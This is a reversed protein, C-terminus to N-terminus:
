FNMQVQVAWSSPEDITYVALAPTNFTWPYVGSSTIEDFINKGIVAVSWRNDINALEARVDIKAFDEQLGWFPNYTGSDVFYESALYAGGQLTLELGETIPTTYTAQVHGSWKPVFAFSRGAGNVPTVGNVCGANIQAQTCAAGPYDTYKADNYAGSVDIRFAGWDAAGVFEVGQSQAAGANKTLLIGNVYQGAQLDEFELRYASMNLTLWDTPQAKFGVEYNTSIEPNLKFTAATVSRNAGQFTGGKSGRSVGAYAMINPTVDYQVTLSPDTQRDTLTDRFPGSPASGIFNQGFDRVLVYFGDKEVETWRVGGILRLDDTANWTATGYLSLSSGNQRFYSTMQGNLNFISFQGAYRISNDIGHRSSDVYAGVIWEIPQGTPSVLRLEQSYQQFEERFRTGFTIPDAHSAAAWSDSKYHEYGSVSVLTLDGLGLTGVISGHHGRQGDFDTIGFQGSTSKVLRIAQGSPLSAPFGAMGRGDVRDDDYQFKAVVNFNENPEWALAARANFFDQRPDKNGTARNEVWGNDDLYKIAIRGSLTDTIPGTVYGFADVGERDILYSVTAGAGFEDEPDNTVISVAGAATNKGLLAGQPGRLVEVRNVDFFPAMYQRARGAFIGDMYLAVTQDIAPNASSSGFGRLSITNISNTRLVMMSPVTQSLGKLDALNYDELSEQSVVNMSIPVDQVNQERKAATVIIADAAEPTAAAPTAPTEQAFAAPAALAGLALGGAIIKSHLGM